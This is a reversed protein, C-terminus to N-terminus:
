APLELIAAVVKYHFGNFIPTYSLCLLCNNGSALTIEKVGDEPKPFDPFYRQDIEPDNLPLDYNFWNYTFLVRRTRKNRGELPNYASHIEIRITKPRIWYLSQVRSSRRLHNPSIREPQRRDELWLDPPREERAVIEDRGVTGIWRWPKAPAILWNEPQIPDGEHQQLDMEVIDLLQPEPARYRNALTREKLNLAGLDHTSVPRIWSGWELRGDAQRKVEFGAVCRHKNKVSNALICIQQIPM